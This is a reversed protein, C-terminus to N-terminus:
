PQRTCVQREADYLNAANRLYDHVERCGLTLLDELGMRWLILNPDTSTSIIVQHAPDFSADPFAVTQGQFENLQGQFKNLQVGNQVNWLLITGDQSSSLLLQSDASFELSSVTTQHGLLEKSPTNSPSGNWTWLKITNGTSTAIMRGDPSFTVRNNDRSDSSSFSIPNGGKLNWLHVIRGDEDVSAVKEGNPSFSLDVTSGSNKELMKLFQGDHTWLLIAGDANASALTQGDPSFNIRNVWNTQRPLTKLLNGERSWLKITGDWSASAFMQGNPSFLVQSIQKTHDTMTRLLQGDQRWLRITNDASGSALTQGDSSISVSTVYKTHGKFVTVLNRIDRSWLIVKGDHSASAITQGNPSFRVNRVLDKHGKFTKLLRGDKSSSLRVTGDADASVFAQGDPSFDVSYFTGNYTSRTEIPTGNRKWLRVTDHGASVILQGDPSLSADEVEATHRFTKLLIGDRNWIRVAKDRSGSIITKGDRSFRVSNVFDDHPLTRLLKGNKLSWLRITKDNSATALITGDPSFRLCNIEVQRLFVRPNKSGLQWLQVKGNSTSALTKGDPSFEVALVSDEHPLTDLLKGDRRWLRVTRDRSATAIQQGDPSFSVSNVWDKHDILRNRERVDYVRQRLVSLARLQTDRDLNVKQSLLEKLKRGAKLSDLLAELQQNSAFYADSSSSLAALQGKEAELKQHEAENKQIFAFISSGVALLFGTIAVGLAIVLQQNRQRRDELESQIRAQEEQERRSRAELEADRNIRSLELFDMARNFDPDYREAWAENLYTRDRRWRLNMELEPDSLLDSGMTDHLVTTEALRRYIQADQAEEEVWGKLQEWIRMLSEHSIDLVTNPTLTEHPPPMLFSKGQQRFEEVVAGVEDFTAGAVAGVKELKTPRRFGRNDAGTETLQKFLIEAIKKKGLTDLEDYVENAHRSLAENMGGVNEYHRLDIPEDGEHDNVWYDWTRMLAHQLIPLQDPDDGVDNLLCNVLRPAIKARYRTIPSMIASRLQDRTMRPILYQSDNIAEPLNRFQACDGLFDSRMTLVIYIRVSKQEKAELLLKVFAVSEDAEEWSQATQKFRFLEEFQDVVILLNITEPLKARRVAEVLGLDSLRLLTETMLPQIDANEPAIGIAEPKHLETALNAIPANGPRIVAVRWSYGAKEILGGRLAPLLGARVLSSKGSGSTGVVALFHTGELRRLLEETQGERGFFLSYDDADFPRLGVFPNIRSQTSLM